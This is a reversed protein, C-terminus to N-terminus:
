WDQPALELMNDQQYRDAWQALRQRYAEHSPELSGPPIKALVARAQAPRQEHRLLIEALKLRVVPAHEYHDRLYEIMLPLSESFQEARHYGAIMKRLMPEPLRWEDVTNAMRRHAAWALEHRGDILINKIQELSSNRYRETKQPDIPTSERMAVIQDFSMRNKGAWVSFVDWRECDVWGLRLMVIGVALGFIAGILHLAESGFAMGSLGATLLQLGTMIAAFLAITLSFTFPRIIFCIWVFGCFGIENMPAWVLSMAILGFIVGSAGACGPGVSAPIFMQILACQAVGMGMYALLYKWWGLKGEVVLGFAWLAFMNGILHGLGLHTFFASVWQEPHLGNGFELVYPKVGEIGGQIMAFFAVVNVAILAVTVVPWHYIPADTKYPFIFFM